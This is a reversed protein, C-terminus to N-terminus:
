VIKNEGELSAKLLSRGRSLQSRVTSANIHLYKSIQEVSLDEYYFLHIVARYKQPLKLVAFYVDSEEEPMEEALTEELPVTKKFWSSSFINKCCNITVRILWAKIHDESEFVKASSIYKLFVENTIDEAHHVDKTQSLALKYVTDFYKECIQNKFEGTGPLLAKKM